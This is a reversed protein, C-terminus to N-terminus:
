APCPGAQALGGPGTVHAAADGVGAQVCYGLDSAIVVVSPDLTPDIRRLAEPTVGAYTGNEAAFSEIAAAAALARAIAATSEAEGIPGTLAEVAEEPSVVSDSHTFWLWAGAAIALAAVLVALHAVRMGATDAGPRGPKLALSTPFFM